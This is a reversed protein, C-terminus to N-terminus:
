NRYKSLNITTKLDFLIDSVGKTRRTIINYDVGNITTKYLVSHSLNFDPFRYIYDIDHVVIKAGQEIVAVIAIDIEDFTSSIFFENKEPKNISLTFPKAAILERTKTRWPFKFCELLTFFLGRLILYIVLLISQIFNM